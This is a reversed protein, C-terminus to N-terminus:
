RVRTTEEFILRKRLNKEKPDEKKKRLNAPTGLIAYAIKRAKNTQRPM